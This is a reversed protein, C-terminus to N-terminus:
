YEYKSLETEAGHPVRCLYMGDYFTPNSKDENVGGYVYTWHDPGVVASHDGYWPECKADWWYEGLRRCTPFEGSVDVVAVGAGVMRNIGGARYNKLFYVIGTTESTEVVNTIGVAYEHEPKEEPLLGCFM